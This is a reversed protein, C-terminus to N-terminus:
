EDKTLFDLSSSSSNNSVYEFFDFSKPQSGGGFFDREKVIDDMKLFFSVISLLVIILVLVKVSFFYLLAYFKVINVLINITNDAASSVTKDFKVLFFGVIIQQISSFLHAVFNRGNAYLHGVFYILSIMIEQYDNSDSFYSRFHIFLLDALACGGRMIAEAVGRFVSFLLIVLSEVIIVATSLGILLSPPLNITKPSASQGELIKDGGQHITQLATEEFSAIMGGVKQGIDHIKQAIPVKSLNEAKEATLGTPGFMELFNDLHKEAEKAKQKRFLAEKASNETVLGDKSKKIVSDAM